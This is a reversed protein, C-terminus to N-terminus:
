RRVSAMAFVQSVFRRPGHPDVAEVEIERGFPDRRTRRFWPIGRAKQDDTAPLFQPMVGEPFQRFEERFAVDQDDVIGTDDRAPHDALDGAGPHLDSEDVMFAAAQPAHEGPGGPFEFGAEADREGAIEGGFHDHPVLRAARDEIDARLPIFEEGM